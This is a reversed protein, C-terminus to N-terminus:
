PHGSYQKMKRGDQLRITYLLGQDSAANHTTQDPVVSNAKVKVTNTNEHQKVIEQCKRQYPPGNLGKFYWRMMMFDTIEVSSM